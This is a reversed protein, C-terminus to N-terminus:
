AHYYGKYWDVFRKIGIEIPTTPQFGIAKKLEDIDAMTEPVDGPPIPFMRIEAKKDLCLEITEIFSMLEVSQDNGINYIRYPARSGAPDPSGGDWNPDPKAPQDMVRVVGEIIDDIYTFSRKMKGHNFVDIAKGEIIAKTFFFYAMDPRGWPGYVTFFRLGTMPLNYLSSYSHAMLENAKKTAGYLSIPHDVADHESFPLRTNAGYVSSSSAFLLHGVKSQRCGELINGFGVLNADIYSYPNEISHRVGAQAALHVVLDFRHNAWLEAMTKRDTIDLKLFTFNPSKSISALRADKLAVDYYDNMNDIGYVTDGREILRAALSAGIFGAM